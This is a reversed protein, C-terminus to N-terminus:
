KGEIGAPYISKKLADSPLFYKGRYKVYLFKNLCLQLKRKSVYLEVLIRVDFIKLKEPAAKLDAVQIALNRLEHTDKIVILKTIPFLKIRDPNTIPSHSMYDIPLYYVHASDINLQASSAFAWFHFIQLVFIYKKM